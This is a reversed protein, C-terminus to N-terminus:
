VKVENDALKLVSLYSKQKPCIGTSTSLVKLSKRILKYFQVNLEHLHTKAANEWMLIRYQLRSYILSHYLM